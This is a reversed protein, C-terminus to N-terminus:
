IHSAFKLHALRIKFASGRRVREFPKLFLLRKGKHHVLRALKGNGTSKRSVRGTTVPQGEVDAFVGFGWSQNERLSRLKLDTSKIRVRAEHSM